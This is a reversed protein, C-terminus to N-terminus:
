KIESLTVDDREDFAWISTVGNKEKVELVKRAVFEQGNWIRRVTVEGYMVDKYNLGNCKRADVMGLRKIKPEPPVAPGGTYNDSTTGNRPLNIVPAQADPLQSDSRTGDRVKLGADDISRQVPLSMQAERDQTTNQPAPQGADIPVGANGSKPPQHCLLLVLLAAGVIILELRTSQKFMISTGM